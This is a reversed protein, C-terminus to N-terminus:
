GKLCCCPASIGGQFASYHLSNVTMHIKRPRPILEDCISYAILILSSHFLDGYVWVWLHLCLFYRFYIAPERDRVRCVMNRSLEEFTFLRYVSSTTYKTSVYHIRTVRGWCDVTWIKVVASCFFLDSSWFDM